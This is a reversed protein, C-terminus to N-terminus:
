SHSLPCSSSSIITRDPRSLIPKREGRELDVEVRRNVILHKDTQGMRSASASSSSLYLLGSPVRRVFLAIAKRGAARFTLHIPHTSCLAPTVKRFAWLTASGHLFKLDNTKPLFPLKNNRKHAKGRAKAAIYRHLNFM